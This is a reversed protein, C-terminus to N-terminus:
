AFLTLKNARRMRKLYRHFPLNYRQQHLALQKRAKRIRKKPIEGAFALLIANSRKKVAMELVQNNCGQRLAQTAQSYLQRDGNWLNVAIIGDQSLRTRMSRYFDPAFLPAAMSRPGFIDIFVVQYPEQHPPHCLFDVVDLPYVHLRTTVPLLFFTKAVHIIKEEKEIIDLQADPHHHHLFHAIAGGGLGCLLFRSPEPHLLLATMMWRTYALQLVHLNKLHICSQREETGFRLNRLPGDDSVEVPHCGTSGRYVLNEVSYPHYQM